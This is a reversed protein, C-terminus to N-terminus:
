KIGALQRYLEGLRNIPADAEPGDMLNIGAWQTQFSEPYAAYIPFIFWKEIHFQDANANLWGFLDTMFQEVHDYDYEGVPSAIDDNWEIGPYAWHLGLESIWIPKGALGEFSDLWGRLGLVQDIHRGANGNPFSYWDLEYTHIAWVDLPPEVGYRAVYSNRMRETWAMGQPYGPCGNCIFDWNLMNPGVLKATPDAGKLTRAYFNLATAYQEPSANGFGDPSSEVVNPENGILWYSGPFQRVLARVTAADWVPDIPALRPSKTGRPLEREPDCCQTFWTFGLTTVQEAAGNVVAVGYRELLPNTPPRQDTTLQDAGGSPGDAATSSAPRAVSLGAGILLSFLVVMVLLPLRPAPM